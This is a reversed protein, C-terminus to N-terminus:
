AGSVPQESHSLSTVDIVFERMKKVWDPMGRASWEGESDSWDTPTSSAQVVFQSEGAAHIKTRVDSYMGSEKFQDAGHRIFSKARGVMEYWARSVIVTSGPVGRLRGTGSVYGITDLKETRNEDLIGVFPAVYREILEDCTLARKPGGPFVNSFEEMFEAGKQPVLLNIVVRPQRASESHSGDIATSLVPVLCKWAADLAALYSEYENKNTFPAQEDISVCIQSWLDTTSMALLLNPLFHKSSSARFVINSTIRGLPFGYNRAFFDSLQERIRMCFEHDLENSGSCLNLRKRSLPHINRGILHEALVLIGRMLDPTMSHVGHETKNPDIASACCGLCRQTCAGRFGANTEASSLEIASIPYHAFMQLPFGLEHLEAASGVVIPPAELPITAPRQNTRKSFYHLKDQFIVNASVAIRGDQPRHKGDTRVLECANWVMQELDAGATIAKGRRELAKMEELGDFGVLVTRTEGCEGCRREKYACIADHAGLAIDDNGCLFLYDTNPCHQRLRQLSDGASQRSNEPYNVNPCHRRLGELSDRVIQKASERKWDPLMASFLTVASPEFRKMFPFRADHDLDTELGKEMSRQALNSAFQLYCDRREEATSHRPGPILMIFLPHRRRGFYYDRSAREMMEEIASLSNTKILTVPNKQAGDKSLKEGIRLFEQGSEFFVVRKKKELLKAVYHEIDHPTFDVHSSTEPHNTFLWEADNDELFKAWGSRYDNFTQHRDGYFDRAIGLTHLNSGLADRILKVFPTETSILVHNEAQSSRNTGPTRCRTQCFRSAPIMIAARTSENAQTSSLMGVVKGHAMNWIAAGDFDGKVFDGGPGIGTIQKEFKKDGRDLVGEVVTAKGSSSMGYVLIRDLDDSLDREAVSAIGVDPSVNEALRILAIDGDPRGDVPKWKEIRGRFSNQRESFPFVMSVEEDPRASSVPDRGLAMNVVHACTAVHGPDIVIGMGAYEIGYGASDNVPNNRRLLKAIGATRGFRQKGPGQALRLRELIMRAVEEPKKHRVDPVLATSFLGDIDGDGFRLPLFRMRKINETSADRLDREFALIARWEDQTWPKENYRKCVCTIVLFTKERYISQLVFQADPGALETVFWEDFFVKGDGLKDRLLEAVRRVFDRKNDGAFSIAVEFRYDSISKDRSLGDSSDEPSHM